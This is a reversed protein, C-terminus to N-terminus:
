AGKQGVVALLLRSNQSLMYVIFVEFSVLKVQASLHKWQRVRKGYSSPCLTILM